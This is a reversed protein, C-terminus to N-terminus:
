DLPSLVVAIGALPLYWRDDSGGDFVIHDGTVAEIRGTITDAVAPVILTVQHEALELERLRAAFSEAAFRDRTRGGSTAREVVRIVVLPGLRVDIREGGASAVTMLDGKAHMVVGRFARDAATVAITDGRSLLEHGVHELTRRRMQAKAAAFEDEEATRRFEGGLEQRLQDGLEHLEDFDDRGTM